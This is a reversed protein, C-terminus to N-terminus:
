NDGDSSDLGSDFGSDFNRDNDSLGSGSLEYIDVSKKAKGPLAVSKATIATTPVLMPIVKDVASAARVEDSSVPVNERITGNRRSIVRVQAEKLTGRYAKVDDTNSVSVMPVTDNSRNMALCYYQETTSTEGESKPIVSAINFDPSVRSPHMLISDRKPLATISEGSSVAMEKGGNNNNSDDSIIPAVKSGRRMISNIDIAVGNDRNTINGEYDTHVTELLATQTDQIVATLAGFVEHLEKVCTAFEISLDTKNISKLKLLCLSLSNNAVAVVAAPTAEDSLLIQSMHRANSQAVKATFASSDDVKM